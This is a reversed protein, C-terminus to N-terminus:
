GFCHIRKKNMQSLGDIYVQKEYSNNVNEILYDFILVGNVYVTKRFCPDIEM